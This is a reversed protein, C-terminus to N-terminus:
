AARAAEGEALLGTATLRHGCGACIKWSADVPNFCQGCILQAGRLNSSCLHCFASDDDCAGQCKPNPCRVGRPTAVKQVGPLLPGTDGIKRYRGSLIGEYEESQAWKTIEAVRVTPYPHTEQIYSYLKMLKDIM